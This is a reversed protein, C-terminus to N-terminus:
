SNLASKRMQLSRVGHLGILLALLPVATFMSPDPVATLSWLAPNIPYDIGYLDVPIDYAAQAVGSDIEFYPSNDQNTFLFNNQNAYFSVVPNNDVYDRLTYDWHKLSIDGTM